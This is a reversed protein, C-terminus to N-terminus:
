CVLEAITSCGLVTVSALFGELCFYPPEFLKELLM